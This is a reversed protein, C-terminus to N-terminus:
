HVVVENECAYGIYLQCFCRTYESALSGAESAIYEPEGGRFFAWIQKLCNIESAM